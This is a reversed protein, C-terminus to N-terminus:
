CPSPNQTDVGLIRLLLHACYWANRARSKRMGRIYKHVFGKTSKYRKVFIKKGNDLTVISVTNTRGKKLVKGSHIFPDPDNLFRQISESNESRDVVQFHRFSSEAIFDTCTRFVKELYRERWKRKRQIEKGLIQESANQLPNVKQYAPFAAVSFRDYRPYLVALFLALNNLADKEPIPSKEVQVGGGDILYLRGRVVLFNDLHPDKHLINHKHLQGITQVVGALLKSREDDALDSSWIQDLSQSDSLYETTLLACESAPYYDIM